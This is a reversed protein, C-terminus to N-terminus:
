RKAPNKVHSAGREPPARLPLVHQVVFEDDPSPVPILCSERDQHVGHDACILARGEVDKTVTLEGCVGGLLREELHPALQRAQPVRTARATTRDVGPARRSRPLVANAATLARCGVKM